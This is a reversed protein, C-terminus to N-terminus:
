SSKTLTQRLLVCLQFTLNILKVFLEEVEFSRILIALLMNLLEKSPTSLCFSCGLINQRSNKLHILIMWESYKIVTYHSDSCTLMELLSEVKSGSCRTNVIMCSVVEYLMYCIDSQAQNLNLMPYMTM